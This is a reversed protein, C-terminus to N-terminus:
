ISEREYTVDSRIRVYAYLSVCIKLIDGPVYLYFAKIVLWYRVNSVFTLYAAGSMYIIANAILLIVFVSVYNKNIFNINKMKAIFFAAIIFGILFGLSKSLVVGLGGTFGSFIPLGITGLLVYVSMSLFAKKPSLLLGALIVFLTQLTIPPLSGLPIVIGATAAMLAPFIAIETLDKTKSTM